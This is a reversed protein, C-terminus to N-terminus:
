GETKRKAIAERVKLAHEVAKQKQAETQEDVKTLYTEAIRNGNSTAEQYNTTCFETGDAKTVRYNVLRM